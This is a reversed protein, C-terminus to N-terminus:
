ESRYQHCWYMPTADPQANLITGRVFLESSDDPLWADVRFTVNRIREYEFFRLGVEGDPGSLAATHVPSSTFPSHGIMGINWEVGGLVASAAGM